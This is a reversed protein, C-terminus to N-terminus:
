AIPEKGVIHGKAAIHLANEDPCEGGLRRLRLAGVPVFVATLISNSMGVPHGLPM